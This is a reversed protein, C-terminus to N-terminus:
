YCKIVVAFQPGLEIFLSSTLDGQLQGYCESNTFNLGEQHTLHYLFVLNSGQAPVIGQHLFPCGVGTNKGPFNWVSSGPLSCDMRNCLPPAGVALCVCVCVRDLLGMGPCMALSCELGFLYM